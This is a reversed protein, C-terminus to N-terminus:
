PPRKPHAPAPPATADKVSPPDVHAFSVVSAPLLVPVSATRCAVTASLPCSYRATNVFTASVTVLLAAVSVTSLGGDVGGAGLVVVGAVEGSLGVGLTTGGAAENWHNGDAGCVPSDMESTDVEVSAALGITPNAQDSAPLPAKLVPAGAIVAEKAAGPSWTTCSRTVPAFPRVLTAM